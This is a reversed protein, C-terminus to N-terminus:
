STLVMRTVQTTKIEKFVDTRAQEHGDTEDVRAVPSRIKRCPGIEAIGQQPDDGQRCDHQNHQLVIHCMQTDNGPKAQALRGRFVGGFPHRTRHQARRYQGGDGSGEGFNQSPGDSQFHQKVNGDDPSGQQRRHKNDDHKKGIRIFPNLPGDNGKHGDDSQRKQVFQKQYLNIPRQRGTRPYHRGKRLSTQKDNHAYQSCHDHRVIQEQMRLHHLAPFVVLLVISGDAFQQFIFKIIGQEGHSHAPGDVTRHNQQRCGSEEGM